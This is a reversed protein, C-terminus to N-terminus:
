TKKMKVYVNPGLFTFIFLIYLGFSKFIPLLNDNGLGIIFYNLMLVFTWIISKRLADFPDHIKRLKAFLLTVLFAPVATLLFERNLVFAYEEQSLESPNSSFPLTVIFECITIIIVVLIGFIFEKCISKM